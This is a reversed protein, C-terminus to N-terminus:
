LYAAKMVEVPDHGTAIMAREFVKSINVVICGNTPSDHMLDTYLKLATDNAKLLVTESWNPGAALLTFSGPVDYPCGPKREPTNPLEGQGTHAFHHAARFVSNLDGMGADILAKAAAIEMLNFFSFHRPRGQAGGGEIKDHGVILGRRSWNQVQASTVSAAQTLQDIRFKAQFISM